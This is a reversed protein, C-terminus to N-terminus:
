LDVLQGWLTLVCQNTLWSHMAVVYRRSLYSVLVHICSPHPFAHNPCRAYDSHLAVNWAFVSCTWTRLSYYVLEDPAAPVRLVVCCNCLCLFRVMM